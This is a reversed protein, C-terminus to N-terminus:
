PPPILIHGAQRERGAEPKGLWWSRSCLESYKAHETRRDYRMDNGANSSQMQNQERQKFITYIMLGLRQRSHYKETMLIYEFYLGRHGVDM